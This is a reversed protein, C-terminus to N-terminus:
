PQDGEQGLQRKATHWAEARADSKRSKAVGVQQVEQQEAM